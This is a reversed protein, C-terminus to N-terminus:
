QVMMYYIPKHSLDLAMVLGLAWLALTSLIMFLFGAQIFNFPIVKGKLANSSGKLFRWAFIYSLIIHMTSFLISILNYGFVPFAILMGIVAILTTKFLIKFRKVDASKYQTLLLTFFGLYIWGLMAVHSHGHMFYRFDMGPIEVIFALRLIAGISGAILFFM